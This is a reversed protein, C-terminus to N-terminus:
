ASTSPRPDGLHRGEAVKMSDVDGILDAVSTDPTALKEAYRGSPPAVRGPPRRRSGPAASPRLPSPTMLTSAWSRRRRHGADVRRPPRRPHAPRTKGRVREGLLVIDHGAIIAREVQPHRDRRLRPTRAPDGGAALIALLNDRMEVRPAQRRPRQRLQPRPHHDAPRRDGGRRGGREVGDLPRNPNDPGARRAPTASEPALRTVDVAVTMSSEQGRHLDGGQPSVDRFDRGWATVIYRSDASTTTPRISTSGAAAPCGSRPGPMPRMPGLSSRRGRPPATESLRQRRAGAAGCQAAGGIALHAFDQCVRGAARSRLCPRASRPRARRTPSTATSRPMSRSSGSRVAAEPALITRAFDDVEPGLDVLTSPLRFATEAM